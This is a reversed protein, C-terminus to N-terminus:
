LRVSEPPGGSGSTGLAPTQPFTALPVFDAANEAGIIDHSGARVWVHAEIANERIPAVGYYLTSAIGRRRLMLHTALGQEFCLCRWPVRTSWGRMAWQLRTVFPADADISGSPNRGRSALRAVTRFPLFAIAARAGALFLLAEIALPVDSWRRRAHRASVPRV